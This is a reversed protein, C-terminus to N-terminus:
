SLSCCSRPKLRKMQERNEAIDAGAPNHRSQTVCLGAVQQHLEAIAGLPEPEQDAVPVALEGGREVGREGAGVDADDASRDPFPPRVRNRFAEDPCEAPFAEVM